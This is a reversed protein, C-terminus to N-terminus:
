FHPSHTLPARHLAVTELPEPPRTLTFVRPPDALRTTGRRGPTPQVGGWIRTSNALRM